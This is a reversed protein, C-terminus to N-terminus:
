KQSGVTYVDYRVSQGKYSHSLPGKLATGKLPRKVVVRSSAKQLSHDLLKQEEEMPSTGVLAQLIQMEKPSKASKKPKDFMPDLYIVDPAQKLSNLFEVADAQVLQINKLKERLLEDEQARAVAESLLQFVTPNKEVATVTCGMSVSMMADQGFGATLDLVHWPLHSAGLARRFIHNRGIVTWRARWSPALFDVYFPRSKPESKLVLAHGIELEVVEVLSHPSNMYRRSEAVV